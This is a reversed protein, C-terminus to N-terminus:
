VLGEMQELLGEFVKMANNVPEETTMDVGAIKLLEIPSKSCGGRLFKLYDNVASEGERLIRESL